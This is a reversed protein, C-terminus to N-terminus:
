CRPRKTKAPSENPSAALAELEKRAADKQGASALGKAYNLRIDTREPAIRTARALYDM